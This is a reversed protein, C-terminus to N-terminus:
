DDTLEVSDNGVFMAAQPAAEFTLEHQDSTPKFNSTLMVAQAVAAVLALM